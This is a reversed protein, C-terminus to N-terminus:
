KVPRKPTEVGLVHWFGELIPCEIDPDFSVKEAVIRATFYIV